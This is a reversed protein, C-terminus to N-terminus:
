RPELTLPDRMPLHSVNGDFFENMSARGELDGGYIEDWDGVVLMLMREPHLYQRAVRTVEEATVSGVRERYTQWFLPDRGTMEDDVFVRLTALKSSFRQPFRLIQANKATSLEEPSVPETRIRDIEEFIIQAALAVTRNKSQYFAGFIGPYYVQPRMFTSASYALGEDSRVRKTVRSTFGSGGLIDNMITMPIADPDDRTLGRTVIITTGQPLDAKAVDPIYPQRHSARKIQWGRRWDLHRFLHRFWHDNRRM